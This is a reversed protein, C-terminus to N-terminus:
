VELPMYPQSELYSRFEEMESPTFVELNEMQEMYFEICDSNSSFPVVQEGSAACDKNVKNFLAVTRDVGRSPEIKYPLNCEDAFECAEELPLAISMPGSGDAHEVVYLQNM